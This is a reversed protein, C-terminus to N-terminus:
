NEELGLKKIRARIAGLSRKHNDSIQKVTLGEEMEIELMSDEEDTWPQGASETYVPKTVAIRKMNPHAEIYNSILTCFAEGYSEAKRKGVGAVSLFEAQSEPLKRCMDKLAADAFIIYAPVHLEAAFSSRLKKLEAFLGMDVGYDVASTRISVAAEQEKELKMEVKIRDRVIEASKPTTAVVSFEGEVALWGNEILYDMIKVIKIQTFDPMIGYTPLKDLGFQAIRKNASGKLIDAILKRGFSRGSNQVRYVCSVIKQAETTVDVTEFNSNCASCNGCYSPSREGFYRLIYERLCGTTNCYFTMAKLRELDKQQVAARMEETMDTNEESGKEILFRNTRVDQGSYLLVCEAPEGDRGARGAEQYYGEINKPMNYHVVFSVNSKDIGMGFANTAVMVTSKDCIFDEQNARREEDPLGAHYRTASYGDECLRECVEEVTKRTICYVVGSKGSNGDLIQKLETYKDKPHRVGFYLNKRDFGTTVTFPNNLRLINSIDEKVEATATATFASVVPRYSLREIFEVIKLYSPRFDQGWQSVCHAEDVTVMSIKTSEAFSIFEDTTLREPAVYIIKYMGMRARRFVERYQPLTLSSNIYAAKVGSQVLASVQDSMLSILPSVVITIGDFLLAPVQYCVSKGAGTPMIGLVDRGSLISDILEEQGQRFETHGFYESLVGYKNM